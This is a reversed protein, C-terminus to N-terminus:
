RTSVASSEGLHRNVIETLRELPRLLEGDDLERLLGDTVDAIKRDGISVQHLPARDFRVGAGTWRLLAGSPASDPLYVVWATHPGSGDTFDFVDFRVGNRSGSVVATANSTSELSADHGWGHLVAPDAERYTWGHAAALQRRRGYSVPGARLRRRNLSRVNIWIIAIGIPLVFIADMRSQARRDAATVVRTSSDGLGTGAQYCSDTGPIASGRCTDDPWLLQWVGVGVLILGLVLFLINNEISGRGRM